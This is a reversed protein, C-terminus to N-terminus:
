PAPALVRVRGAVPDVEVLAGDPIASMAGGAGIVASLGLERAIVAAHSLLGGEEVVVAGALSLVLNFAPTTGTAVLVDGPEIRALADAPDVAVCARGRVVETGIGDGDLDHRGDLPATFTDRLVLQARAITRMPRPLADLPIDVRPGLQMPPILASRRARDEARAQVADASLPLRAHDSGTLLTVLEDVTVEVAHDGDHLRGQEALARGAALMARRLLGVPWAATLAGNDDRMGFTAQADAVLRELEPHDVSPVLARLAALDAPAVAERSPAPRSLNVVLAPLEGLTLSDVDYGTVLRDGFEALFADLESGAVARLEDITAPPTPASAAAARLADLAPGRGVSAPSHGTLVALVLDAPVGRDLCWALLLGTPILDPGHLSFHREYGASALARARRLHDALATADLEGVAEAQLSAARSRWETRETAYWRQADALWPREALSRRAAKTRRRFAPVLRAAAWLLPRPPLSNSFGGLLPRPAVYVHGHVSRVELTDVPMGYEAFPLREGAPMATCLLREYEPTLARPFHDRLSIWEGKAPPHFTVTM